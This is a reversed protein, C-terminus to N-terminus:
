HAGAITGALIRLCYSRRFLDGIRGASRELFIGFVERKEAKNMALCPVLALSRAIQLFSEIGGARLFCLQGKAHLELEGAEQEAGAFGFLSGGSELADCVGM